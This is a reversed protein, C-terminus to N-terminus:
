GGGGILAQIERTVEAAVDIAKAAPHLFPQAPSRATGYEVFAAYAVGGGGAKVQRRRSGAAGEKRISDRLAGTDVPCLQKALDVIHDAARDVGRDIAQSLGRRVRVLGTKKLPM